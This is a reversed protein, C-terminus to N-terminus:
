VAPFPRIFRVETDIRKGEELRVIEQEGQGAQKNGDWAYIFGVTGDVGTFTKKMNPDTMVWKSYFDQNKIHKVYDFVEAAPKDVIINREISYKKRTFAALLLILAIIGGIIALITILINM